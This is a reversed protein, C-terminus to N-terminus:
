STNTGCQKTFHVKALSEKRFWLVNRPIEADETLALVKHRLDDDRKCKQLLLSVSKNVHSRHTRQLYIKAAAYSEEEEKGVTLLCTTFVIHV